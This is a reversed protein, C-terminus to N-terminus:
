DSGVADSGWEKKRRERIDQGDWPKFPELLQLRQPIQAIGPM